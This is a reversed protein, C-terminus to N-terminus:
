DAVAYVVDRARGAYADADAADADATNFAELSAAARGEALAACRKAADTVARREDSGPAALHAALWLLWDGRPCSAWAEAYSPQRRAWTLGGLCASAPLASSWHAPPMGGAGVSAWASAARVAGGGAGGRLGARGPGLPPCGGQSGRPHGRSPLRPAGERPRGRPACRSGGGRPGASGRCGGACGSLLRMEAARGRRM